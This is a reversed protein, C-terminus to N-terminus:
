NLLFHKLMMGPSTPPCHIQETIGRPRIEVLLPHLNLTTKKYEWTGDAKLIVVRGDNTKGEISGQAYATAAMLVLLVIMLLHNM